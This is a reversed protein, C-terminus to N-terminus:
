WWEIRQGGLFLAVDALLVGPAITSALIISLRRLRPSGDDSDAVRLAESARMEVVIYCVVNAFVAGLGFLIKPLLEQDFGTQKWLVWGSLLVAILVPLKSQSM